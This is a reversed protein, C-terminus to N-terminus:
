LGMLGMPTAEVSMSPRCHIYKFEYESKLKDKIFEDDDPWYYTVQLCLLEAFFGHWDEVDNETLHLEDMIEKILYYKKAVSERQEKSLIIKTL